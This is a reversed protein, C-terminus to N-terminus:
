TGKALIDVANWGQVYTTAYYKACVPVVDEPKNANRIAKVPMECNCCKRGCCGYQVRPIEPLRRRTSKAELFNKSEDEVM